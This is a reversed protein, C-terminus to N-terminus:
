KVDEWPHKTPKPKVQRKGCNLCVRTPAPSGCDPDSPCYITYYVNPTTDVWAHVYGISECDSRNPPVTINMGASLDASLLNANLTSAGAVSACLLIAVALYKRM